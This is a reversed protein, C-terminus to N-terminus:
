GGGCAAMVEPALAAGDFQAISLFGSGVWLTDDEAVRLLRARPSGNQIGGSFLHRQAALQGTASDFVNLTGNADLTYLLCGGGISILPAISAGPTPYAASWRIDGTSDVSLLTSDRDGAYVYVNGQSDAILRANRGSEVNLAALTANEGNAIRSLVTGHLLLWAEPTRASSVSGSYTQDFLIAGSGGDLLRWRTEQGDRLGVAIQDGDSRFEVLRLLASEDLDMPPLSWRPTGDVSYTNVGGNPTLFALQENAVAFPVDEWMDVDFVAVFRSGQLVFVQGDRTHAVVRGGPLPAIGSIVGNMSIEWIPLDNMYGLLKDTTPIVTTGDDLAVPALAPIDTFTRAEIFGPQLRAQWLEVFDQPNYWGLDLPNTEVYGPGGEDSLIRRIEFHLHPLGRSPWGILGVVDGKEVCSGVPPFFITEGVEMHGYLSYAISGDPFTHEIVVVGKETDWEEINSLTVRGRAIAYVPEGWHRFGIDVGTHSGFFRARYLGFDDYRDELTELIDIPYDLADVVGCPANFQANLPTATTGALAALLLIIFAIQQM